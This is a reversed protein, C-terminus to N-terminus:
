WTDVGRLAWSGGTNGDKYVVAKCGLPALPYRNWNYPGKLTEYASKSPDIHLARLLNLTDQIQPTLRDWLQSHFTATQQLWHQLSLMRSLKSQMNLQMSAITTPSWWNCSAITKPLFIRKQQQQKIIWSLYNLSSAKPPWSSLNHKTRTTYAWMTWVQLQLQLSQTLKTINFYSSACAETM